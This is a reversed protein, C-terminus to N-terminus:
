GEGGVQHLFEVSIIFSPLFPSFLGVCPQNHAEAVLIAPRCKLRQAVAVASTIKKGVQFNTAKFLLFFILFDAASKGELQFNFILGM